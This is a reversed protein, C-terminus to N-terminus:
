VLPVRCGVQMVLDGQQLVEEGKDLEMPKLARALMLSVLPPFEDAQLLSTASLAVSHTSAVVEQCLELPVHNM